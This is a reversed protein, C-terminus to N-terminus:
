RYPTKQWFEQFIKLGRDTFPHDFAAKLVDAGATAIDAGALAADVLHRGNRIAAALVQTDFDYEDRIAVIEEIFGSVEDSSAEKWGVFPSVYYAGMRMAQLAQTPSFVLTLNVRIDKAALDPIARFGAETAPLKIVFNPCLAALEVAQAVMKQYDDLFPDVEVSVTKDTGAMLSGIEQVVELFPRGSAQVHKPNTTVGDIHWMELAHKVEHVHASDLFLKM